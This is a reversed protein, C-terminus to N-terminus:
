CAASGGRCEDILRRAASWRGGARVSRADASLVARRGPHADATRPATRAGLPRFVQTTGARYGVTENYGATSDYVIAPRSSCARRTTTAAAALADPDGSTADGTVAAIRRWSTAGRTSATGPMSATCASRAARRQSARRDLGRMDTSTTPRRAARPTAARRGARGRAAQVSDPFLDGPPGERGASVVRVAGLLGEGLGLYVFPLSAAARWMKLLAPM